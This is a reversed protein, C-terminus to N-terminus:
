GSVGKEDHFFNRVKLSSKTRKLLYAKFLDKKEYSLLFDDLGKFNEKWYGKEDFDWTLSHTDINYEQCMEKLKEAAEAIRETKEKEHPDDTKVAKDMDYAEFVYANGKYRDLYDELGKISKVGPVGIVSVDGNLLSYIVTAKLIGETIIVSHNMKGPLFTSVAGSSVGKECGCSSVWLYKAKNVPKDVRIQFGTILNYEGDYVPCFYGVGSIKFDWQNKKNLYFGPVGELDYGEELLHRIADYKQKIDPTSRFRFRKIDTETLGRRVLDAKHEDKLTLQKLFAYYVESIRGDSAKEAEHCVPISKASEHSKKYEMNGNIAQFIEKAAQKNANSGYANGSLKMHLDLVGGHADCAFCNYINSKDGKQVIYSFKGRRDGCFPCVAFVESGKDKIIEIGHIAAVDAINFTDGM